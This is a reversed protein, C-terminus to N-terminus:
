NLEDSPRQDDRLDIDAKRVADCFEHLSASFRSLSPGITSLNEKEFRRCRDDLWDERVQSWLRAFEVFDRQIRGECDTVRGLNFAM